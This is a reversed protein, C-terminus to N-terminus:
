REFITGGRQELYSPEDSDAHSPAPPPGGAGHGQAAIWRNLGAVRPDGTVEALAHRLRPQLDAVAAAYTSRILEALRDADARVTQPDLEIATIRNGADVEISVGGSRAQGRLREVTDQTRRVTAGFQEFGKDIM